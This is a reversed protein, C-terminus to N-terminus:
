KKGGGFDEWKWEDYWRIMPKGDIWEVPLWVYTSISTNEKHKIEVGPLEVAEKESTDVTWAGSAKLTREAFPYSLRTIAKGLFTPMWRDAMVIYLETGPVKLVSTFQSFFSSKTTDKICPDGLEEYKGHWDTIRCVKSPNPYYGTTGSTYLYYNGDKEFYTPDERTYPPHLGDYHVSYEGTVETFNESLTATVLQFHPRDFILYGKGTNKDVAITFDGTDMKLPKYVKHVYEYPGMFDDAQLVCMFQSTVGAMIKLWAVYKGSKKCYVIHPRDMCYTPHLPSNLDDPDPHIILGLDKWNYLDKSSYARVGWHWITNSPGGKTYEKNEGYWYYTGDEESYFVSFGHAQIAKGETDLWKKGPKFSHYM